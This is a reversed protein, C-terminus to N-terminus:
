QADDLSLLVDFWRNAADEPSVSGDAEWNVPDALLLLAGRLAAVWTPSDPIDLTVRREGAPISDPTLWGLM